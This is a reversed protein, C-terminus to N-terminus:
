PSEFREQALKMVIRHLRTSQPQRASQEIASQYLSKANSMDSSALAAIFKKTPDRDSITVVGLTKTAADDQGSQVQALALMLVPERKGKRSAALRRAANLAGGNELQKNAAGEIMVLVLESLMDVNRPQSVRGDYLTKAAALFSNQRRQVDALGRHAGAYDPDLQLTRQFHTAALELQNDQSLATALVFHATTLNPQIEIAKQFHEIASKANGTRIQAIGMNFHAEPIVPERQIAEGLHRKALDFQNRQIFALGYNSQVLSLQKGTKSVSDLLKLAETSEGIELMAEALEIKAEDAKAAGSAIQEYLLRIASKDKDRLRAILQGAVQDLGAQEEPPWVFDKILQAGAVKYESRPKLLEDKDFRRLIKHDTMTVHVVDETRRLPMHCRVCDADPQRGHEVDLCDEKGHCRFCRERYFAVQQEAPVKAHPDHCTVCNLAGESGLYCASQYMRYPHHNIEFLDRSDADAMEFYAQYNTLKQGPQFSYIDRDFSRLFSTRGSTPQLHCQNCVDDRRQPDLNPPNVISTLVKPDDSNREAIEIHESGPGHCRQCGIGHPLKKPFRDPMGFRDSGAEFDPFANHCFMCERTIPRTFDDHDAHDYGPAMGWKAEQTYWVVPLQFMAGSKDRYAYTRSHNGSGIVFDVAERIINARSGDSRKRFRTMFLQGDELTMEYHKNSAAHYFQANEFDEIQDNTDFEYASKGMGVHQYTEWIEQHCEACQQDPVYKATSLPYTVRSLAKEIAAEAAEGSENKTTAQASNSSNASRSNEPSSKKGCGALSGFIAFGISLTVLAIAMSSQGSPLIAIHFRAGPGNPQNMSASTSYTLGDHVSLNVRFGGRNDLLEAM